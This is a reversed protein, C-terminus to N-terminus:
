GATDPPHQRKKRPWDRSAKTRKRHYDDNIAKKLEPILWDTSVGYRLHEMAKRLLRLVTAVSIRAGRARQLIAAHFRLMGLALINGALELAGRRPTRAM